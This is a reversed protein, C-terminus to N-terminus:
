KKDNLKELIVTVGLWLNLIISSKTEALDNGYIMALIFIIGNLTAFIIALKM